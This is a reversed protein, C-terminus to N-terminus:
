RKKSHRRSNEAAAVSSSRPLAVTSSHGSVLRRVDTNGRTRRVDWSRKTWEITRGLWEELTIM